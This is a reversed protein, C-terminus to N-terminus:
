GPAVDNKKRKCHTSRRRTVPLSHSSTCSSLRCHSVSVTRYVYLVPLPVADSARRHALAMLWLWSPQAQLHPISELETVAAGGARLLRPQRLHGELEALRLTNGHCHSLSVPRPLNRGKRPFELWYVLTLIGSSISVLGDRDEPEDASSLKLSSLNTAVPQSFASTWRVLHSKLGCAGDSDTSQLESGLRGVLSGPRSGATFDHHGNWIPCDSWELCRWGLALDTPHGKSRGVAM